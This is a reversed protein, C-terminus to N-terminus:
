ELIPRAIAAPDRGAFLWGGSAALVPLGVIILLLDVVPVNALAYTIDTSYYAAVTLYAVVTGLVAGLLGLAGATVGTITRRTRRGAGAASLIRLDNATESRILGVTMALVGLALVIGAATADNRVEALSPLSNRTEVTLGSEEALRRAAATQVSTLPASTQILWASPTVTLKLQAVAAPTVLLNPDSTGTPLGALLQVKPDPLTKVQGDPSTFDGYQLFLGSTDALGDRSTILETGSAISAASIGYHSLVAPTAVYITGPNGETQNGSVKAVNVQASELDLVNTSGLAAAIANASAQEQATSPPRVPSGGGSGGAPGPEAPGAASHVILQNSPLNPGVYDLADTYRSTALVCVVVAIFVAFSGAALTPGSRARYRALDRLAIRVTIPAGRGFASLVAIAVPSLLLLGTAIVAVGALLDLQNSGAIAHRGGSLVVLLLGGAVCLLAPRVAHRAPKPRGPRGALASVVPVQAVAKAPRRSALAATAVALVMSAAVLWWPMTTWVVRHGAGQQMTPVYAIWAATGLVAGAVAGFVGVVVGNAVMVLRVNRDTAGLSSLLGVARLRRQALVTFGATAVLGIFILGFLAVALVILQLALRTSQPPSAPPSAAAPFTFTGVTLPTADFLVTVMDPEALHGPAVLAFDDSFNQPNRVVGVIRLTRGNESWDGGVHVGLTAALGGTMAVEGSGAPYRGSVLGLTTSGYPGDPNQARLEAGQVFGTNLAQNEIVDTSGFERQLAALDAALHPDDGPLTTLYDASGWAAAPPPALNTVIASGLVTAAVALVILSLVLFQQRWERRFLRWAWRIMARRAPGGGTRSYAGSGAGAERGPAPGGPGPGSM